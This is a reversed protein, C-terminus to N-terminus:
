RTQINAPYNDLPQIVEQLKAIIQPSGAIIPEPALRGNVLGRYDICKGSLYCLVGGAQHLIAAGPVLDWLRAKPIFAATASGRATYVLNASVSGVTRIHNVNIQYKQHTTTSSTALFGKERWETQVAGFFCDTQDVNGYGKHVAVTMDDLAPMYFLGLCPQGYHLLGLAIGWNPLGHVFAATGDLPDLTWLGFSTQSNMSRTGEEGILDHEPYTTQIKTALFQEVELDAQTVLSQDPKRQPKVHRFYALAIQGAQRVWTQLTPIDLMIPETPIHNM